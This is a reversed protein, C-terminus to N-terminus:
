LVRREGTRGEDKNGSGVTENQSNNREQWETYVKRIGKFEFDTFDDANFRRYTTMRSMDKRSMYDYFRNSKHKCWFERITGRFEPDYERMCNEIGEWKWRKFLGMRFNEYLGRWKEGYAQSCWCCFRYVHGRKVAANQYTSIRIRSMKRINGEM